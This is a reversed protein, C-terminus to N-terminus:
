FGELEGTTQMGLLQTAGGGGAAGGATEVLEEVFEVGQFEGGEGGVLDEAVEVVQTRAPKWSDTM